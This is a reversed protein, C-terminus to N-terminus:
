VVLGFSYVLIAKTFTGFDYALHLDKGLPSQTAHNRQMAAAAAIEEGTLGYRAGLRVPLTVRACRPDLAIVSADAIRDSPAEGPRHRRTSVAV